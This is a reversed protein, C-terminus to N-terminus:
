QILFKNRNSLYFGRRFPAVVRRGQLDCYNEPEAVAEAIRELAVVGTPRSLTLIEDSSLAHNYIRLDALRGKFLPDAAFQSRGVYNLVTRLDSPRLTLESSAAVEAGDVYLRVAEAGISVAVHHWGEGLPAATLMQEAGGNKMVFRMDAYGSLPTLFMYQEEGNGFDFIRQWASSTADNCVWMAITMAESRGVPAPLQLYEDGELVLCRAGECFSAPAFGVTDNSAANFLNETADLTSNEFTYHAVLTPTPTFEISVPASAESLNRSRDVAQLRYYYTGAESIGNDVFTTANILRGIVEWDISDASIRRGRQVMFGARDTEKGWQWNLVISASQAQPTPADPADQAVLDLTANVPIFRWRQHAEGTFAAQQAKTNRAKRGGFIELYLGSHRSRIYWDGGGAYEAFWQENAGGGGAYGCITGGASTSWNLVDAMQTTDRESRLYFYGFDGGIRDSVPRILWRQHTASATSTYTGQALEIGNGRAGNYFGLCMGSNVNMIVYAGPAVPEIPVDAGSHLQIMREANRQDSTQYGTGGPMQMQYSCYPGYGDYYVERDLSVFDYSSTRAQRESVGLFADMRGNPRKYVTAASWASRNEAYGIEKGYFSAKCYEGRAAADFGWWVGTQLGYHVGVFAEMVNHLEDATAHNGDERVKQWFKAYHDFDGALQHTNGETVYPKMYAYWTYAQDCNLTNGASIRIGSLDADESILRAISKFHEKTGEGWPTYDPENFPAVSVVTFGRSQIYRVSAKIVRYWETPKGYYNASNLAEHDCNLLVRRVGSLAIHDLRSQLARQQAASLNGESDVLDSPQFSVRGVTLVDTGIFNTGRVVNDENDWAVDMGWEIPQQPLLSPDSLPTTVNYFLPTAGIAEARLTMQAHPLCQGLSRGGIVGATLPLALLAIVILKSQKM